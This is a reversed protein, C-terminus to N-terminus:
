DVVNLTFDTMVQFDREQEVVDDDDRIGTLDLLMDEIVEGTYYSKGALKAFRQLHIRNMSDRIEWWHRLEMALPLDQRFLRDLVQETHLTETKISM